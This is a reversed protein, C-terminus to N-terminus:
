AWLYDTEVFSVKDFDRLKNKFIDEYKYVLCGAKGILYGPQSTYITLIGERYRFQVVRSAGSEVKWDKLIKQITRETTMEKVGKEFVTTTLRESM